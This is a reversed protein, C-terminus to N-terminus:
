VPPRISDVSIFPPPYIFFCIFLYFHNHIGDKKVANEKCSFISLCLEPKLKLM